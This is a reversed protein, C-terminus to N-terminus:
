IPARPGASSLFCFGLQLISLVLHNTSFLEFAKLQTDCFFIYYFCYFGEILVNGYVINWGFGSCHNRCPLGSGWMFLSKLAM